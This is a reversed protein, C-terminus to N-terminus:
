CIKRYESINVQEQISMTSLEFYMLTYFTLGNPNRSMEKSRACNLLETEFIRPFEWSEAPTNTRSSVSGVNSQSISLAETCNPPIFCGIRKAPLRTITAKKM